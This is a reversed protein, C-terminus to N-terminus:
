VHEVRQGVVGRQDDGGVVSLHVDPGAAPARERRQVVQDLRVCAVPPEAVEVGLGAAGGLEVSRRLLEVALLRPHEPALLQEVLPPETGIGHGGDVAADAVDHERRALAHAEDVRRQRVLRVEDARVSRDGGGLHLHREHGGSSSRGGAARALTTSSCGHSEDVAQPHSTSLTPSSRPATANALDNTCRWRCVSNEISSPAARMPSTTAVAAASPCGATPMVSWPFMYPTRSNYRAARSASRVGTM